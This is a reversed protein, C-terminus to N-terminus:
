HAVGSCEEVFDGLWVSGRPVGHESAVRLGLTVAVDDNQERLHVVM